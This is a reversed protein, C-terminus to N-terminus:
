NTVVRDQRVEEGTGGRNIFVGPRAVREGLPSLSTLEGVRGEDKQPSLLLNLNVGGRAGRPPSPVPAYASSYPATLRGRRPRGHIAAPKLRRIVPLM